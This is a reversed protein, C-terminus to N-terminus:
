AKEQWPKVYIYKINIINEEMRVVFRIVNQGKIYERVEVFSIINDEERWKGASSM